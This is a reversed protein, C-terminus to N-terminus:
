QQNPNVKIRIIVYELAVGLASLLIKTEENKRQALRKASRPPSRVLLYFGVSSM